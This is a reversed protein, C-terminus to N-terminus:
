ERVRRDSAAQRLVRFGLNPNRWHPPFDFRASPGVRWTKSYWGGGRMARRDGRLPGVPDTQAAAPWRGYYDECWEWVNGIMDYLGWANPPKQGVQHRGADEREAFWGVRKMSGVTMQAPTMQGPEPARCAYEWEAEAPLRFRGDGLWNLRELFLQCDDWSVYNVPLAPNRSPGPRPGMVAAWQAETVEHVGLYFGRTITVKRLPQEDGTRPPPKKEDGDPAGLVCAGPPMYVMRLMVPKGEAAQGVRWERAVAVGAEKARTRQWASVKAWGPVAHVSPSEPRSPAMRKHRRDVGARLRAIHRARLGDVRAGVQRIGLELRKSQAELREVASALTRQEVILSIAAFVVAAAVAAYLWMRSGAGAHPADTPAPPRAEPKTQPEQTVSDSSDDAM